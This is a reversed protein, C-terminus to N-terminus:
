KYVKISKYDTKNKQNYTRHQNDCYPLKKSYGCSCISYKVNKKVRIKFTRTRFKSPYLMDTATVSVQYNGKVTPMGSIEGGNGWSNFYLGPPLGTVDITVGNTYPNSSAYVWIGSLYTDVQYPNSAVPKM